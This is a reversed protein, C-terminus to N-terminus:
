IQEIEIDIDVYPKGVEPFIKCELREVAHVHTTPLTQLGFKHPQAAYTRYIYSSSPSSLIVNYQTGGPAPPAPQRKLLYIRKVNKCVRLIQALYKLESISLRLRFSLSPMTTCVFVRSLSPKAWELGRFAGPTLINFPHKLYMSWWRAIGIQQTSESFQSLCPSRSWHTPNGLSSACVLTLVHNQKRHNSSPAWKPLLVKKSVPKLLHTFKLYPLNDLDQAVWSKDIDGFHKYWSSQQNALQTQFSHVSIM